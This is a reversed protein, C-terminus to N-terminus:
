STVTQGCTIHVVATGATEVGVVYGIVATGSSSLTFTDDASTYVPDGINAVTVGSITALIMHNYDVVVEEGAAASQRAIGVNENTSSAPIAEGSSQAVVAGKYITNAAKVTLAPRAIPPYETLQWYKHTTAATLAM